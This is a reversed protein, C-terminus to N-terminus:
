YHQGMMKGFCIKQRTLLIKQDNVNNTYNNLEIREKIENMDRYRTQYKKLNDFNAYERQCNGLTEYQFNNYAKVRNKFPLQM